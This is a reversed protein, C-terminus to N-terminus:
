WYRLRWWDHKTATKSYWWHGDDWQLKVSRWGLPVKPFPYPPGIFPWSQYPYALPYAVRSYNNYPAYTPWAYPPLRVDGGGGGAGGAAAGGDTYFLPQPDNLDAPGGLAPPLVPTPAGLPAPTGLPAPAALGGAGGAPAGLPAPAQVRTITTGGEVRIHDLVREVGPVGQVIRVAEERQSQEAVSGSLIATGDAFLIDITYHRLQGSHRLNEAITSALRQNSSAPVAAPLPQAAEVPLRAPEQASAAQALCAGVAAAWLFRSRFTM